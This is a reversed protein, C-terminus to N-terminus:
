YDIRTEIFSKSVTDGYLLNDNMTVDNKSILMYYYFSTDNLSTLYYPKKYRKIPDPGFDKEDFFSNEAVFYLKLLSSVKYIEDM